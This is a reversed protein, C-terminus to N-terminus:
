RQSARRANNEEANLVAAERSGPAYGLRDLVAPDTRQGSSFLGDILTEAIFSCGPSPLILAALLALRKM